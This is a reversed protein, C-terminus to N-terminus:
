VPPKVFCSTFVSSLIVADVGDKKQYVLSQVHALVNTAKVRTKLPLSQVGTIEECREERSGGM